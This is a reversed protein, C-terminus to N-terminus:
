SGAEPSFIFRVESWVLSGILTQLILTKLDTEKSSNVANINYHNIM